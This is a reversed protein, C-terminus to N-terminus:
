CTPNLKKLFSIFISFHQPGTQRPTIGSEGLVIDVLANISLPSLM